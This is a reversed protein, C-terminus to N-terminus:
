QKTLYISGLIFVSIYKNEIPFLHTYYKPARVGLEVHDSKYYWISLMLINGTENNRLLMDWHPSFNPIDCEPSVCPLM